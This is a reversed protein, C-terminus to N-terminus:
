INFSNIVGIQYDLFFSEEEIWQVEEGDLTYFKDEEKKLEKEQYFPKM